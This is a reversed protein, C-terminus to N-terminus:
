YGTLTKRLRLETVYGDESITHISASIFWKGDAFAGFGVLDMNLGSIYGPNGFVVVAAEKERKNKDRLKHKAKRTAAEAAAANQNSYDIQDLLEARANRRRRFEDLGGDEDGGEEEPDVRENINLIAETGEPGYPAESAFKGEILDGTEPSVYANRAEVYTDNLRSTFEYSLIQSAGYTLTYVSSRAEYEEESYIILQRNFVKLSLGEDKCRDRLYELYAQEIVDSRALKPNNATDWVLTLGYIGAIEAAIDQLTKGEWFKYQKETKFGLHIPVSTARVAVMNPPGALSIEDVWMVGCDFQWTDGPTTWNFVKLIANCESAKKPLYSKMWTREPDAIEVTLDDAKDNTNDGYSFAVVSQSNSTNALSALIDIGGLMISGGAHRATVLGPIPADIGPIAM